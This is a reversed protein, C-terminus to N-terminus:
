CDQDAPTVRLFNLSILIPLDSLSNQLAQNITNAFSAAVSPRGKAKNHGELLIGEVHDPIRAFKTGVSDISDGAGSPKWCSTRAFWTGFMGPSMGTDFRFLLQSVLSPRVFSAFQRRTTDSVFFGVALPGCTRFRDFYGGKIRITSLQARATPNM